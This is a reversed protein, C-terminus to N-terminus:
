WGFLRKFFGRKQKSKEEIMLQQIREFRRLSAWVIEEFTDTIGNGDSSSCELYKDANIERALQEGMEYTIPRKGQKALNTLTKPDKRLDTQNGILFIPIPYEPVDDFTQNRPFVSKTVVNFSDPEVVSFVLIVADVGNYSKLIKNSGFYRYSFDFIELLLNKADKLLLHFEEGDIEIHTSFVDEDDISFHRQDNMSEGFVNLREGYVFHRIMETKGSNQTGMVARLHFSPMLNQYFISTRAVEEYVDQLNTEDIASCELYKTANIHRALQEGMEVSIQKKELNTLEESEIKEIRDEANCGVLIIPISPNHTKMYSTNWKKWVLKYSESDVVSFSVIVADGILPTHKTKFFNGKIRQVRPYIKLTYKKSEITAITHKNSNYCLLIPKVVVHSGFLYVNCVPM